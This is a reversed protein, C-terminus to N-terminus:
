KYKLEQGTLAYILNQLEHVYDLRTRNYYFQGGETEIIDLYRGNVQGIHMTWRISDEHNTGKPLVFSPKFSFHLLWARTLIIRNLSVSDSTPVTISDLHRECEISISNESLACVKFIADPQLSCGMLNGIRFEKTKEKKM